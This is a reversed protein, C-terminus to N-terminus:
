VYKYMYRCTYVYICIYLPIYMYICLYIYIYIYIYLYIHTYICTCMYMYEHECINIYIFMYVRIRISQMGALLVIEVSLTSLCLWVKKERFIKDCNYHMYITNTMYMNNVYRIDSRTNWSYMIYMCIERHIKNCTHHIYIWNEISIYKYTVYMDYRATCRTIKTICLSTDSYTDWFSFSFCSVFFMCQSFDFM